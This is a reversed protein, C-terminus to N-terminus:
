SWPAPARSDGPAPTTEEVLLGDCGLETLKKFAAVADKRFEVRHADYFEVHKRYAKDWCLAMDTILMMWEGGMMHMSFQRKGAATTTERFRGGDVAMRYISLYGLGHADPHTALRGPPHAHTLRWWPFFVSFPTFRFCFSLSM